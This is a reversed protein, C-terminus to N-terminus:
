QKKLKAEYRRREVKEDKTSDSFEFNGRNLMINFFKRGM